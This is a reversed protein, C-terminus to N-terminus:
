FDKDTDSSSIGLDNAKYQLNLRTLKFFNYGKTSYFSALIEVNRAYDYKYQLKAKEWLEDLDADVLGRYHDEILKIIKKIWKIWYLKWITAYVKLDWIEWFCSTQAYM